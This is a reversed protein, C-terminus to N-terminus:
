LASEHKSKVATIEEPAEVNLDTIKSGNAFLDMNGLSKNTLREFAEIAENCSVGDECEVSAEFGLTKFTIKAASEHKSKVATIEEPAPGSLDTVKKGDAFLDMNALSKSTLREFAEIAESCSADDDCEVEAEFGLTKFKIRAASEHKSKVATIEAGDELAESELDTIKKGNAFLDMNSLSKGTLREFAEIAQSCNAGDNCKVSAEFGLTKFTIKM